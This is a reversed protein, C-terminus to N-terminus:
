MRPRELAKVCKALDELSKCVLYIGGAKKFRYAWDKQDESLVGKIVKGEIALSQGEVCAFIDAAGKQDKAIPAFCPKGDKGRVIRTPNHRVPCYGCYNLYEMIASLLNTESTKNKRTTKTGVSEEITFPVPPHSLRRLNDRNEALIANRLAPSYKFLESPSTSIKVASLLIILESRSPEM